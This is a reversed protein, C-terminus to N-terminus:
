MEMRKEYEQLSDNAQTTVEIKAYRKYVWWGTASWFALCLVVMWEAMEHSRQIMLFVGGMFAAILAAISRLLPFLSLRRTIEDYTMKTTRSKSFDFQGIAVAELIHCCLSIANPLFIWKNSNIPYDRSSLAICVLFGALSVVSLFVKERQLDGGPVKWVYWPAYYISKTKYGKANDAPVLVTTYSDEYRNKLSNKNM